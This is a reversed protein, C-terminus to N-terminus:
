STETLETEAGIVEGLRQIIGIVPYFFLTEELTKNMYHEGRRDSLAEMLDDMIYRSMEGKLSGLYRPNVLFTNEFHIEHDLAIFFDLFKEVGDKINNIMGQGQFLDKYLVESGLELGDNHICKIAGIDFELDKEGAMLAGKCTVEKVMKNASKIVLTENEYAKEDFVKEFIISTYKALTKENGDTLIQLLKSATGSFTISVPVEIGRVHMIRAIHYIIATYFLVFLIKMDQDQRLMKNFSLAHKDKLKANKELSFWFSVIDESKNRKRIQDQVLWLKKDNKDLLSKVKKEYKRVFGNKEPNAFESFFNGFLSNAAFRFSTLLHPQNDKYVIVDTTGGGIDVSVVPRWAASVRDSNKYYYFPALSESLAIPNSDKENTIYKYFLEKWHAEIQNKRGEAMSAPYFWILRSGSFSRNEILLKARLLLIIEEFFSKVHVLKHDESDSWKLNTLVKQTLDQITEYEYLFPINTDSMVFQSRELDGTRSMYIATRKPMATNSDVDIGTSFFAQRSYANFEDDVGEEMKRLTATPNRNLPLDFPKVQGGDRVEIHTNSTGFDVAFTLPNVGGTYKEWIPLIISEISRGNIDVAVRIFDFDQQLISYRVNAFSKDMDKEARITPNVQIPNNRKNIFLLYYNCNQLYGEDMDIAQVRYDPILDLKPDIKVCPFLNLTFRLDQITGENKSLDPPEPLVGENSTHVYIRQFTIQTNSGKLPIKLTVRVAEGARKEMEITVRGTILDDANFFDFFTHALPLLYGEEGAVGQMNGDFYRKTNIPYNVRVLYPELFDSVTIWPYQINQGPLQRDEIPAEVYYPVVTGLEWEDNVYRLPKTFNNQLVLPKYKGNYKTSDIVFGSKEEIEADDRKKKRLTFGFLEVVDNDSITLEPYNAEFSEKDKNKKLEYLEDCLVKNKKKFLDRSAELFAHVEVFKESFGPFAQQIRYLYRIFEPDREILPYGQEAFLKHKGFQIPELAALDNATTCFLTSSSTGGIVKYDVEFLYLRQINLFNYVEADQDLFLGLTEGLLRHQPNESEELRALDRKRDWAVIRLRDGMNEAMFALQMLDLTDSVLKHYLRPPADKYWYDFAVENHSVINHFATKVLDFRAFPSPISTVQKGATDGSPDTIEEVQTAGFQDASFWDEGDKADHFRFVKPM